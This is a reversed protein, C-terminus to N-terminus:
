VENSTTSDSDIASLVRVSRRIVALIVQLFPYSEIVANQLARLLFVNAGGGDGGLCAEGCAVISTSVDVFNAAHNGVKKTASLIQTLAVSPVAYDNMDQGGIKQSSLGLTFPIKDRVFGSISLGLVECSMAMTGAEGVWGDSQLSCSSEVVFCFRLASEDSSGKNDVINPVMWSDDNRPLLRPSAVKMTETFFPIWRTM